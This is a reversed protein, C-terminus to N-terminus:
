FGPKEAELLYTGDSESKYNSGGGKASIKTTVPKSTKTAAMKLMTTPEVPTLTVSVNPEGKGTTGNTMQSKFSLTSVGTAVVKRADRYALFFIPQPTKVVNIAADILLIATQEIKFLTVLQKTSQGTVVTTVRPSTIVTNYITIANLFATQTAATIAYTPLATINIQAQDYVIQANDKLETDTSKNFDSESFGIEKLLTLNNSIKAFSQMKNACDSALLILTTQLQHKTDTVGSGDTNQTKAAAQILIINAQLIAFNAAFGPLGTTLAVNQLLFDRVTMLMTLRDQQNSTM